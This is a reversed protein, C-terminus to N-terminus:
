DMPSAPAPRGVSLYAVGSALPTNALVGRGDFIVRLGPFQHWDLSQYQRHFAQIVIADLPLPGDLTVFEAPLDAVEQSTFLPDNVLVTAGAERLLAILRPAVSHALEKVDERYSLGLVLIRRGALHGLASSLRAVAISAMGDNTARAQRLMELEGDTADKLLFHPYVPICHGGVGIGPTHLHSFPQTNAAQFAEMADIGREAAFLALQNALAINVDRYSTEALKTFEATEVSSLAMVDADLVARYFALARDTSPGDVGGVVKPYRKLDQFIRGSYVREPSFALFFDAGLRLGSAAELRPGIRRRTTGVPLTTEFIVLTGPRLGKGVAATAQDLRAYDVTGTGDIMLPVIVVVAESVSVGASIDTTASLRGARVQREVLEPLGAEGAIPSRGASVAKVVEADIDCGIVTHGKSAYQAALPLGIKGLGVVAIRM